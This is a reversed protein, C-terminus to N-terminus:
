DNLNTGFGIVAFFGIFGIVYIASIYDVKRTEIRDIGYFPLHGSFPVKVVASDPRHEIGNGVLYRVGASDISRYDGGDFEVMRREKLYVRIDDKSAIDFSDARYSHTTVCGQAPFLLAACIIAAVAFRAARAVADTTSTGPTV